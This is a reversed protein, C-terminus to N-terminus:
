GVSSERCLVVPHRLPGRLRIDSPSCVPGRPLVPVLPVSGEERDGAVTIRTLVATSMVTLPPPSLRASTCISKSHCGLGHSYGGVM